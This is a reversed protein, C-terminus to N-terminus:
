GSIKRHLSLCPVTKGAGGHTATLHQLEASLQALAVLLNCGQLRIEAMGHNM